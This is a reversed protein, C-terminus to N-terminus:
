TKSIVRRIRKPKEQKIKEYSLKENEIDTINLMFLFFDALEEKTSSGASSSSLIRMFEKTMQDIRSILYRKYTETPLRTVVPLKKMSSCKKVIQKQSVTGKQPVARKQAVTKKRVKSSKKM